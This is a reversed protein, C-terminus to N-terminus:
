FFISKIICIVGSFLVMCWMTYYIGTYIGQNGIAGIIYNRFSNSLALITILIILFLSIGIIFVKSNCIDLNYYAVIGILIYALSFLLIFGIDLKIIIFLIDILLMTFTLFMILRKKNKVSVLNYLYYFLLLMPAIIGISFGQNTLM